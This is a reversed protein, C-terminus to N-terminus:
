DDPEHRGGPGHSRLSQERSPSKGSIQDTLGFARDKEVYERAQQHLEDGLEPASDDSPESEAPQHAWALCALFVAALAGLSYPSAQRFFGILLATGFALALALDM